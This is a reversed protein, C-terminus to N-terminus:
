GLLGPVSLPVFIIMPMQNSCAVHTQFLYDM